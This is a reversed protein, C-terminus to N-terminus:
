FQKHYQYSLHGIICSGIVGPAVWPIMMLQGDFIQAMFRNGGFVFFATYSAIGAGIISSLHAIVWEKFGEQYGSKM